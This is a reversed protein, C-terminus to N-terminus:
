SIRFNDFLFFHSITFTNAAVVVFIILLTSYLVIEVYSLYM